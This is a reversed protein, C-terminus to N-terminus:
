PALEPEVLEFVAGLLSTAYGGPPLTFTLELTDASTAWALDRVQLVLSRRGQVVGAHELGHCLAEHPALAAQEVALAEGAAPSRGRGWLPGTPVLPDAHWAVDGPVLRNWSGDAVRRALVENFLFSRLVSLHLGRRFVSTRRRGGLLWLRARALNDAGFRQRGFYNPAGRRLVGELAESWGDGGVERLRVRFRNGALEGRRLKRRHRAADILRVGAHAPLREPGDPTLVSFWQCTVARADKMGAFGVNMPATGFANALWAAVAPTGLARKELLLYLHEGVGEPVVAPLEEVRFDEPVTKMVARAGSARRERAGVATM